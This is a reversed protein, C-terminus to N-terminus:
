LPHSRMMVIRTRLIKEQQSDSTEKGDNDTVRVRFQKKVKQKLESDCVEGFETFNFPDPPSENTSDVVLAQKKEDMTEFSEAIYVVPAPTENADNMDLEITQKAENKLKADEGEDYDAINFPRPPGLRHPQPQPFSSSSASAAAMTQKAEDKLKADEGDDYDAVNFPRPPKSIIPRPLSALTKSIDGVKGENANASTSEVATPKAKVDQIAGIAAPPNNYNTNTSTSSPAHVTSPSPAAALKQNKKKMGEHGIQRQEDIGGDCVPASEDDIQELSHQTRAPVAPTYLGERVKRDVRDQFSEVGQGTKNSSSSAEPASVSIAYAGEKIKRTVRDAYTEKPAIGQEHQKANNGTQDTQQQHLLLKKKIREDLNDITQDVSSSPTGAGAASKSAEEADNDRLKKENKNLSVEDEVDVNSISSNTGDM